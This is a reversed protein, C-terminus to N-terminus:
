TINWINTTSKVPMHEKRQIYPMLCLCCWVHVCWKWLNLRMIAIQKNTTPPVELSPKWYSCTDTAQQRCTPCHRVSRQADTRCGCCCSSNARQRPRPRCGDWGSVPTTLDHSRNGHRCDCCGPDGPHPLCDRSPRRRRGAAVRIHRLSIWM